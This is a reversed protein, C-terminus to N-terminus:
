KSKQQSHGRNPKPLTPNPANEHASKIHRSLSSRHGFVKGCGHPCHHPRKGEHVTEVHAELHGRREFISSCHKCPFQKTSGSRSSRKTRGTGRSIAHSSQSQRLPTDVAKDQPHLVVNWFSSSTPLPRSSAGSYTGSRGRNDRSNGGQDPPRRTSGSEKDDSSM